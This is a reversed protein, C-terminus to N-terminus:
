RAADDRHFKQLEELSELRNDSIPPISPKINNEGHERQFWKKTREIDWGYRMADNLCKRYLCGICLALGNDREWLERIKKAEKVTRAHYQKCVQIMPVVHTVKLERDRAGCYACKGAASVLVLSRWAKYTDTQRIWYSLPRRPKQSRGKKRKQRLRRGAEKWRREQEDLIKDSHWM